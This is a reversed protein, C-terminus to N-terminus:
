HRREAGAGTISRCVAALWGLEDPPQRKRELGELERMQGCWHGVSIPGATM